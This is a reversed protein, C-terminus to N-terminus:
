PCRCINLNKEMQYEHIMGSAGLSIYLLRSLFSTNSDDLESCLSVAKNKLLTGFEDNVARFVFVIQPLCKLM